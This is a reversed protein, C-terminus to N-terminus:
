RRPASGEKGIEYQGNWDGLLSPAAMRHLGARAENM